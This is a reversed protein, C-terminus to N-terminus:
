KGDDDIITVFIQHRETGGVLFVVSLIEKGENGLTDNIIPISFTCLHATVPNEDTPQETCDNMMFILTVHDYDDGASNTFLKIIAVDHYIATYVWQKIKGKM